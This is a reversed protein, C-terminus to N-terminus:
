FLVLSASIFNSEVFSLFHKPTFALEISRRRGIKVVNKGFPLLGGESEGAAPTSSAPEPRRIKTEIVDM